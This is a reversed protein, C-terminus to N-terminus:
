CLFMIFVYYFSISVYSFLVFCCSFFTLVCRNSIIVELEGQKATAGDMNQM